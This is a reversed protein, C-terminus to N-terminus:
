IHGRRRIRCLKIGRKRLEQRGTGNCEIREVVEIDILGVERFQIFLLLIYCMDDQGVRRQQSQITKNTSSRELIPRLSRCIRFLSECM